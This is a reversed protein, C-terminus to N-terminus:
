YPDKYHSIIIGLYSPLIEDEIYIFCGVPTLQVSSM